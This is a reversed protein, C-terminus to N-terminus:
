GFIGRASSQGGMGIKARLAAFSKMDMGAIDEPSLQQDTTDLGPTIATAGASPAIGPMGARQAQQAQQIGALIAATKNKAVEISAEVEEETNGTIYDILEPAINDAEQAVRDRTHIQLQTFAREKAFLAERQEQEARFQAMQADWEAQKKEVLEKASLEAEAAKQKAAEAEALRDAAEKERKAEAARLAKVEDNLATYREDTKSIRGYLKDKEESRAAEQAAKVDEATFYQPEAAEATKAM